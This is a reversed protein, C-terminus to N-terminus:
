YAREDAESRFTPTAKAAAKPAAKSASKAPKTM